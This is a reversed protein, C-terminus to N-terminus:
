GKIEKLVNIIKNKNVALVLIVLIILALRLVSYKFSFLVFAILVTTIFSIGFIMKDNYVNTKIDHDSIVKKYFVFHMFMFVAYSILTTYAAAIYGYLPIFIYNLIINIAAGISSACMVYKTAGYYFEVAAFLDYVFTYFLGLAVVPIVYVASQYEETGILGILEPSVLSILFTTCSLFAVLSIIIKKLHDLKGTKLKEYTWPVRSGNIATILIMIVFSIQYALSYVGADSDGCYNKIMIRDSQNLIILSLYHPILPVNFKLAYSWYESDFFCKGKYFQYAFFLIGAILQVLLFGLVLSEAVTGFCYLLAVSLLPIGISILINVVLLSKYKYDVRQKAMWFLFGPYVIFYAFMLIIYPYDLDLTKNIIRYFLLYFLGVVFTCTLGLGQMSSTYKDRDYKNDVLIKTYVGAYLNLSALIFLIDRWSQFVSWRGYEDTSLVRIYLLVMILSIGNQMFNCVTYWLSAKAQIPLKKYIKIM